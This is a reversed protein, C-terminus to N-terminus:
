PIKPVLKLPYRGATGEAQSILCKAKVILGKGIADQSASFLGLYSFVMFLAQFVM